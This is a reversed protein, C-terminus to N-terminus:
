ISCLREPLFTEPITNLYQRQFAEKLGNLEGHNLYKVAM